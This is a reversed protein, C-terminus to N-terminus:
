ERRVRIKRFVAVVLVLERLAKALLYYFAV